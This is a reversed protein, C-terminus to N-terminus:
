RLVGALDRRLQGDFRDVPEDRSGTRVAIVRPREADVAVEPQHAIPEPRGDLQGISRHEFLGFHLRLKGAHTRGDRGQNDLPLVRREGADPVAADIRQQVAGDHLQGVVVRPDGRQERLVRVEIWHPKTPAPAETAEPTAAGAECGDRGPTAPTGVGAGDVEPPVAVLEAGVWGILRAATAIAAAANSTAAM